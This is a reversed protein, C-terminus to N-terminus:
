YKDLTYKINEKIKTQPINPICASVNIKDWQGPQGALDLKEL